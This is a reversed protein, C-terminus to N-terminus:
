SNTGGPAAELREYCEALEALTGNQLAARIASFFSSWHHLNHLSLLVPALLEKVNILHHIYARCHHTCTYCECGALLPADDEEFRKDDLSMEYVAEPSTVKTADAASAESSAATRPVLPFVLAAGRDSALSPYTSDFCDLGARLTGRVLQAISDVSPLLLSEPGNALGELVYGDLPKDAAHRASRLRDDLVHGGVLAGFLATRPCLVPGATRHLPGTVEEAAEQVRGAPTDSDCLVELWDPRVASQLSMFRAADLSIRGSRPWVAIGKKDNFGSPTAVMPDQNCSYLVGELGAFTRYGKGFEELISQLAAQSALPAQMVPPSRWALRETVEPILHPVFGGQYGSMLM